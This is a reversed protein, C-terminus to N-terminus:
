LEHDKNGMEFEESRSFQLKSPLREIEGGRHVRKVDPQGDLHKM